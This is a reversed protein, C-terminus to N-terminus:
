EGKLKRWISPHMRKFKKIPIRVAQAKMKTGVRCVVVQVGKTTKSAYSGRKCRKPSVLRKHVYKWGPKWDYGKVIM